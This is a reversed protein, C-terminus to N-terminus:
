QASSFDQVLMTEGNRKQLGIGVEKYQPNLLTLRHGPVELGYDLYLHILAVLVDDDEGMSINESGFGDLGAALFRDGFTRGDTSNHGFRGQNFCIDDAHSQATSILTTNLKLYPLPKTKLLATKLSFAYKSRKLDPFHNLYIATISDWFFKPNARAYNTWYYFERAKPVLNQYGEQSEVFSLLDPDIPRLIEIKKKELRVSSIQANVCFPILLLLCIFYRM